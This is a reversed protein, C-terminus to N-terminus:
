HYMCYAIGQATYYAVEAGCIGCQIPIDDEESQGVEPQVSNAEVSQETGESLLALLAAKQAILLTRIEPTVAGQPASVRLKDGAAEVYIDRIHLERLLELTTM